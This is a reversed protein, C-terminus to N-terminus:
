LDRHGRRRKLQALAELAQGAEIEDPSLEASEQRNTSIRGWNRVLRETGFLDQEIMLTYFRRIGREPDIRHLVLPHQIPSPLEDPRLFGLFRCGAGFM